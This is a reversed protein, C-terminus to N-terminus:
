DTGSDDARDDAAHDSATARVDIIAGSDTAIGLRRAIELFRNGSEHVDNDGQEQKKTVSAIAKFASTKERNSSAPNLVIRVMERIMAVRYEESVDWQEMIARAKLRTLRVSM